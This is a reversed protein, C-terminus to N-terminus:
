ASRRLLDLAAQRSVDTIVHGSLMRAVEDIREDDSLGKISTTTEHDHHHKEIVFHWDAEAAVQPAHTICIVQQRQSLARLKRGIAHAVSGGTGADIEDFILTDEECMHAVVSRLALMFRSLEGGSATAHLPTFPLGPNMQVLFSIDDLGHATAQSLDHSRIDIRFQAKEMKLDPLQRLLNDELRKAAEKRIVSIEAALTQYDKELRAMDKAYVELSQEGETLAQVKEQFEDRKHLLQDGTCRYKRAANRLQHLRDDISEISVGDNMFHQQMKLLAQEIAVLHPHLADLSQPMEATEEGTLAVLKQHHAQMTHVLDYIGKEGLLADSMATFHNLIKQRNAVFQRQELWHSEENEEPALSNLEALAFLLYDRQEEFAKRREHIAEISKRLTQWEDYIRGLALMQDTLGAYRDLLERQSETSLLDDFQGHISIRQAFTQKIFSSTVLTQNIYFKSKNDKDIVRRLFIKDDSEISLEELAQSYALTNDVTCALVAQQSGPRVVSSGAKGGLLLELAELLISKGAGTEGTIATFGQQLEIDVSKIILFDKIALHHIM